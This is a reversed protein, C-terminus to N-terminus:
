RRAWTSRHNHIFEETSLKPIVPDYECQAAGFGGSFRLRVTRINGVVQGSGWRISTDRRHTGASYAAHAVTFNNPSVQTGLPDTATVAALGGTHCSCQFAEALGILTGGGLNPAWWNTGNVDLARTTTDYPTGSLNIAALQDVTPAYLRFEYTGQFQEDAQVPFVTPSGGSDLILARSRLNTNTAANGIGIETWNGTAGGVASTWTYRRWAYYPASGSVGFGSNIGGTPMVVGWNALASDTFSPPTTGTGLHLRTFHTGTGFSELGKDTILNPNPIEVGFERMVGHEPHIAKGSFFGAVGYQMHTEVEHYRKRNIYFDPSGPTIIKSM